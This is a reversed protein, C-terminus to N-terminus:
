KHKDGHHSSEYNYRIERAEFETKSTWRGEIRIKQGSLKNPGTESDSPCVLAKADDASLRRQKGESVRLNAYTFSVKVAKGNYDADFSGALDGCSGSTGAVVWIESKHHDSHKEDAMSWAPTFAIAGAVTFLGILTFILGNWKSGPRTM